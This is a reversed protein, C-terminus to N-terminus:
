ALAHKAILGPNQGYAAAVNGALFGDFEEARGAEVDVVGWIAAELGDVAGKEACCEAAEEEHGKWFEVDGCFAIGQVEGGSM